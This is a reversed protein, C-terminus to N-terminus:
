KQSIVIGVPVVPVGSPPSSFVEGKFILASSKGGDVCMLYEFNKDTFFEVMEKFTLGYSKMQYGDIILFMLSGNKTIGILTRPASRDLLSSSYFKKEYETVPKGRSIILPGGEIAFSLKKDFSNFFTFEVKMGPELKDIKEIAAPSLLIVKEGRKVQEKYGISSITDGDLFVYVYHEYYPIKNSFEETYLIVSGRYPTNVGKVHLTVKGISLFLLTDLRGIGFKGDETQFFLPRELSPLNILKGDKILLGIPYFSSPDFYGGNVVAFADYRKSMSLLSEGSPIHDNALVPQVDFKRPNLELATLIIKRGSVYNEFVGLFYGDGSDKKLVKGLSLRSNIILSNELVEVSLESWSATNMYLKIYNTGTFIQSDSLKLNKGKVAPKITIVLAGSTTYWYSFMESFAPRDFCIILGQPTQSISEIRPPTDYVIMAKGADIYNLNLLTCLFSLSIFIRDNHKIAVDYFKRGFEITASGDALSFTVLSNGPFFIFFEDSDEVETILIDDYLKGLSDVSIFIDDDSSQLVDSGSIKLTGNELSFVVDKGTLIVACFIFFVVM